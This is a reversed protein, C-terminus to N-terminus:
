GAPPATTAADKVHEHLGTAAMYSLVSTTLLSAAEALAPGQQGWDVSALTGVHWAFLIPLVLSVTGAFARAPGTADPLGMVKAGATAGYVLAATILPSVDIM